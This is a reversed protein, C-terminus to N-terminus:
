GANNIILELDQLVRELISRQNELTRITSESEPNSRVKVMAIEIESIDNKYVKTQQHVTELVEEKTM